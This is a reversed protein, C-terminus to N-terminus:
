RGLAVPGQGSVEAVVTRAELLAAFSRWSMWSRVRRDLVSMMLQASDSYSNMSASSLEDDPPPQYAGLRELTVLGPAVRRARGSGQWGAKAMGNTIYRIVHALRATAASRPDAARGPTTGRQHVPYRGM